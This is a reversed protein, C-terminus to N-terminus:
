KGSNLADIENQQDGIIGELEYIREDAIHLDYELEEIRDNLIYFENEVDSVVYHLSNIIGDQQGSM